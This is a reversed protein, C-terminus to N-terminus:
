ATMIESSDVIIHETRLKEDWIRGEENNRKDYVYVKVFCIKNLADILSEDGFPSLGFVEIESIGDLESYLKRPSVLFLDDAPYLKNSPYYGRVAILKDKNIGEPAFVIKKVDVFEVNESINKEISIYENLRSIQSSFLLQTDNRIASLDFFGHLHTCVKEKDWFEYYNMTFVSDYSIFHPLRDESFLSPLKGEEDFFIANIAMCTIMTQFRAEDNVTLNGKDVSSEYVIKALSEIGIKETSRLKENCGDIDIGGRFVYKLVEAEKDFLNLFRNYISNMDMGAIKLHANIGNGM